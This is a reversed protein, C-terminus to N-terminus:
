DIITLLTAESRAMEILHNPYNKAVLAKEVMEQSITDFYKSMDFEYIYKCNQLRRSLVERWWTMPSRGPLGGHFRLDPM